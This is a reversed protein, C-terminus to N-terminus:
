NIVFAQADSIGIDEGGSFSMQYQEGNQLTQAKDELPTKEQSSLDQCGCPKKKKMQTYLFLGAGGLLGYLLIKNAKM